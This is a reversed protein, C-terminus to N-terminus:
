SASEPPTDHAMQVFRTVAAATGLERRDEPHEVYHRLTALVWAPEVEFVAPSLTVDGARGRDLRLLLRAMRTAEIAGRDKVYVGILPTGVTQTAAVGEIADWPVFVGFGPRGSRLGAPTLALSGGHRSNAVGLLFMGGLLVTGAAGVLRAVLDGDALEEPWLALAAMVVTFLGMSVTGARMARTSYRFVLATDATGEVPAVVPLERRASPVGSPVATLLALGFAIAAIGEIGDDGLLLAIGIVTLAAGFAAM